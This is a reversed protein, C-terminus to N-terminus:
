LKMLKRKVDAIMSTKSPSLCESIAVLSIEKLEKLIIVQSM